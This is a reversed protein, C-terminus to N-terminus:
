WWTSDLKSEISRINDRSCRECTWTTRGHDVSKSWSLRAAAQDAPAPAVGCSACVLLPKVETTQTGNAM